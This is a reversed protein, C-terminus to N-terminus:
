TCGPLLMASTVEPWPSIFRLSGHAGDLRFSALPYNRKIERRRFRTSEAAPPAVPPSGRTTPAQGKNRALLQTPHKESHTDRQGTHLAPSRRCGCTILELATALATIIRPRLHPMPPPIHSM